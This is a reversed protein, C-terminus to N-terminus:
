RVRVQKSAIVRFDPDSFTLSNETIIQRGPSGYRKPDYLCSLMVIGHNATKFAYIILSPKM